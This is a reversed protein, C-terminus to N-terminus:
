VPVNIDFAEFITRQEKTAPLIVRVNNVIQLRLKSLVLILKKMTMKRYLMKDVMVNHIGSLLILSIFGVFVKSQMNEESHVRTRGLDLCNKLRQFGKELIDKERYIKIAEKADTVFNSILVLWGATALEETAVDERLNVTYGSSEKESRRIILYKAYEANSAYKEPKAVAEDKLTAIHAYLEERTGHAKRANYYVHAYVKHNENWRRHKTVARLSDKGSIITNNLTDIDKGESKVMEIAFKNNFPVAIVFDVSQQESLMTNVNRASFFGKDMVAIM